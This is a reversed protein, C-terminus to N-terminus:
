RIREALIYIDIVRVPGVSLYNTSDCKYMGSRLSFKDRKDYMYDSNQV